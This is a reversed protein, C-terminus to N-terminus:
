RKCRAPHAAWREESDYWPYGPGTYYGCVVCEPNDGERLHVAEWEERERHGEAELAVITRPKGANFTITSTNHQSPAIAHSILKIVRM